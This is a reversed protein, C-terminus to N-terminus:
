TEGGIDNAYAEWMLDSGRQRHRVLRFLLDTASERIDAIDDDVKAAQVLRGCHDLLKNIVEHDYRLQDVARALRPATAVVDDYVGDAGETVTVHEAFDSTLQDLRDKVLQTWGEIRGPTPAALATELRGIAGRLEARRRRVEDLAIQSATTEDQMTAETRVGDTGM